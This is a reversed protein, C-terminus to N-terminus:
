LGGRGDRHSLPPPPHPGDSLFRVMEENFAESCEWMPNHGANPLAVFSAGSIAAALQRGHLMPMIPDREGWVVLTPAAIRELDKQWDCRLVEDLALVFSRPHMRLLDQMLMPLFGPQRRGLTHWVDGVRTAGRVGRARIAANVLVLREVREPHRAALRAAVAGGLSHGAVHARGLGEGDMWRVLWDAGADLGLWRAGRSAGFGPLDVACTRFHEALAPVNRSWWRSSGSMGHLLVLAHREDTNAEEAVVDTEPAAPRM